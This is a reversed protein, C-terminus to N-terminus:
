GGIVMTPLLSVELCERGRFKDRSTLRALEEFTRVLQGEAMLVVDGSYIFRYKVQKKGKPGVLVEDGINFRSRIEELTYIRESPHGFPYRVKLKTIKDGTHIFVSRKTIHTPL